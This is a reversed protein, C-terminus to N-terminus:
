FSLFAPVTVSIVVVILMAMMPALLKTGAEEGKRIAMNKREELAAHMENEMAGSLGSIGQRLNQSLLSAFRVYRHQGLRRGFDTYVEQETMGSRLQNVSILMEEYVFRRGERDRRKLYDSAIKEWASRITMGAELLTRFKGLLPAYSFALEEERKKMASKKRERSFVPITLALLLFLGFVAYASTQKKEFIIEQGHLEDPLELDKERVSDADAESVAQLLAERDSYVAEKPKVRVNLTYDKSHGKYSLTVVVGVTEGDKGLNETSVTGFDSLIEIRSSHYSFQIGADNETRFVLRETVEEFSANGGLIVPLMAEYAQDFIEEYENEGPDRGSVILTMEEEDPLGKVVVPVEKTEGFAPREIRTYIEPVLNVLGIMVGLFAGAAAVLLATGYTRAEATMREEKRELLREEGPLAFTNRLRRAAFLGASAAFVPIKLAKRVKRLTEREEKRGLVFVATLLALIVLCIIM